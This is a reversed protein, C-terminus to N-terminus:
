MMRSNNDRTHHEIAEWGQLRKPSKFGSGPEGAHRQRCRLQVDRVARYAPLDPLKFIM